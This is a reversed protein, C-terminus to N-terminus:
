KGMVKFQKFIESYALENKESVIDSRLTAEHVMEKDLLFLITEARESNVTCARKVDEISPLWKKVNQTKSM